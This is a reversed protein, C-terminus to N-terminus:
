CGLADTEDRMEVVLSSVNLNQMQKVASLITINEAITEVESKMLDQVTTKTTDM